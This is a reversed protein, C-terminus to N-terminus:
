ITKSFVKNTYERTFIGTGCGLELISEIGESDKIFNTLNNAVKKKYMRIITINILTNKLFENNKRM